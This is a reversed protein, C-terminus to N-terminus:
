VAFSTIVGQFATALLWAGILVGFGICSWVFAKKAATLKSENGQATLFMFGAWILFISAVPIGIRIVISLVAHIFQPITTVGNGVVFDYTGGYAAFVSLPMLILLGLTLIQKKKM